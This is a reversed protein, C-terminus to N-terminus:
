GTPEAPAAEFLFPYRVQVTGGSSSPPFRLHGIIASVCRDVAADDLTSSEVRANSVTGDSEITFLVVVRGASEERCARLEDQHLRIVRRIMERPCPWVPQAKQQTSNVRDEQVVTIM